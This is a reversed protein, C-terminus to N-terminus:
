ASHIGFNCTQAAESESLVRLIPSVGTGFPLSTRYVVFFLRLHVELIVFVRLRQSRLPLPSSVVPFVSGVQVVVVTPSICVTSLALSHIVRLTRVIKLASECWM